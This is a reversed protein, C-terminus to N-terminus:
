TARRYVHLPEIWCILVASWGQHWHQGRDVALTSVHACSSQVMTCHFYTSPRIFGLTNLMMHISLHARAEPRWPVLIFSPSFAFWYFCQSPKFIRSQFDFNIKTNCNQGYGLHVTLPSMLLLHLSLFLGTSSKKSRQGSAAREVPNDSCWILLQTMPIAQMQLVKVM